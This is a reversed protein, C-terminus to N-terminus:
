KYNVKRRQRFKYRPEEVPEEVRRRKAPQRRTPRPPTPEGEVEDDDEEAARKRTKRPVSSGAADLANELEQLAGNSM